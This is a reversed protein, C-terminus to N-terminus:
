EALAKVKEPQSKKTIRHHAQEIVGHGCWVLLKAVGNGSRQLVM